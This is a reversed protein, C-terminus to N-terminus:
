AFVLRGEPGLGCAQNPTEFAAALEPCSALIETGGDIRDPWFRGREWIAVGDVEVTPDVINLSIEGPAYAGCTHFHLTRPNGFAAGSWREFHQSAPGDFACAPHIGGHWSHVFDAELGYRDAVASYHARAVAADPGEFGTIRNGQVNVWLTDTLECAYPAYLHSGTGVLFGQQAIRGSFGHAPVPSYVLQPFRLTTTDAPATTESIRGSLDTGAPCTVRVNKATALVRDVQDRLSIMVNYDITGFASALMEPNVAYCVIARKSSHSPQFRIQDGIRAVFVTVDHRAMKTSLSNALVPLERVTEEHLTVDIGMRRLTDAIQAALRDDYYGLGAPEHVILVREGPQLGGCAFLMNRVARDLMESKEQM